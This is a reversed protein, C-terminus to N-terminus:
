AGAAPARFLLACVAGGWAHAHLLVSGDTSARCAAAAAALGGAAAHAGFIPTVSWCPVGPCTREVALREARDSVRWGCAHLLTSGVPAREENRSLARRMAAAFVDADCGWSSAPAAPDSAWGAGAIEALVASRRRRASELTELVLCAAGEGVHPPGGLTALAGLLPETMLEVGGCYAIELRGERLARTGAAVASAASADGCTITVSVGRADLEIASHGGAANAVSEAFLFPSAAAMGDKFMGELYEWSTDTCGLGTGVFTGRKEPPSTEGDADQLRADRHALLCALTWIQSLEAMRRLKRASLLQERDFPPIRAVRHARPRGRAGFHVIEEGLPRNAALAALFPATGAGAPSVIGVGTVVVRRM